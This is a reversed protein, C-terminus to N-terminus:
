DDIVTGFLQFRFFSIYKCWGYNNIIQLKFHKYKRLKVTILPFDDISFIQINNSKEMTFVDNNCKIWKNANEDGVYLMFNKPSSSDNM